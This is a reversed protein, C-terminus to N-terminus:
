SSATHGALDEAYLVMSDTADLLLAPGALAPGAISLAAIAGAAVIRVLM